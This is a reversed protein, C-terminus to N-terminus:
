SGAPPRNKEAMYGGVLLSKYFKCIKTFGADTLLQRMREEPVIELNRDVHALDREVQTVDRGAALQQRKWASLLTHYDESHRTGELDIVIIKAGNYLRKSIEDLYKQKEGNDALFQMVLISTAGDFLTDQPIDCITGTILKVRKRLAASKIKEGAMALMRSSPDFGTIEWEPNNEAYLIAEHGTGAGTVLIKAETKTNDALLHQALDHMSDYEPFIERIRKDYVPSVKRDFHAIIDIRERREEPMKM